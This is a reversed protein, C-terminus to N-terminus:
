PRLKKNTLALQHYISLYSLSPMPAPSDYGIWLGITHTPTIGFFWYDTKENTTGTKSGFYSYHLDNLGMTTGNEVVSSLLQRMIINTKKSWVRIGKDNWKLLVRGNKDTVSTIARPPIYVGDHSFTTYAQTMETVTIGYTFGGLASPLRVDEKTVKSFHFKDLYSFGKKVGITDLMRIAPTNYSHDIASQLTVDGYELHTANKPCYNGVCVNDANVMSTATSGTVDIYPAFVLLPKISSGTQRYAQFARNFGFAQYEKGGIVAEITNNQHNAIVMAGEINPLLSGNNIANKADQQLTPDLATHITIGSRLLQQVKENIQQATKLAYQQTVLQRFENLTYSVYDPFRVQEKSIQLTIVEQSAKTYADKSIIQKALLQKLIFNQRKKTNNFHKLPNYRVPNNPIAALFTLKALTLKSTPTSFYYQSAAEIGYNGNEFYISNLYLEMIQNKTYTNELKLTYLFEAAKRNLTRANSLFLNKAVQQTITSGGEKIGNNRIDTILARLIGLLNYGNHQYFQVDEIATFIKPVMSPLSSLPLPKYFIGDDLQYITHNTADKITSINNLKYNTLDLKANTTQITYVYTNAHLLFFLFLSLQILILLYGVLVKM